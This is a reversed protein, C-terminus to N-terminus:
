PRSNRSSMDSLLDDAKAKAEAKGAADKASDSTSPGTGTVKDTSKTAAHKAEDMATDMKSDMTTDMSSSELAKSPDYEDWQQQRRRRMAIAGAAGVAAGAAVIGAVLPWRSMKPQEKKRLNKINKTKAAYRAQKAGDNAAAVLPALAALTSAWGATASDRVKTAPPAVYSRAANMRPGVTAGVGGAAHTSAQMFHDFSKGMESRFLEGRTKRRIGFV